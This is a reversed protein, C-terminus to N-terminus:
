GRATHQAVGVGLKVLLAIDGVGFSRPLGSSVGFFPGAGAQPAAQRTFVDHLGRGMVKQAVGHSVYGLDNTMYVIFYDDLAEFILCFQYGLTHM